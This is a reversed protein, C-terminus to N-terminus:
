KENSNNNLLIERKFIEIQHRPNYYSDIVEYSKERLKEREEETKSTMKLICNSLDKVDNEIFFCGNVGPTIAEFEPMQNKFNNHTIVPTGYALSHMATLGVNGPSVCVDSNYLLEGIKYEDYSPGYLWINESVGKRNILEIFDEAENNAGIIVLNVQKEQSKLVSISEILLDLRKVKQIRGIYILVPLNNNFYDKYINTKKLKKRVKLQLDYNLSNYIVILRDKKFGKKLMINKAYNGYLFVKNALKFFCTKILSKFVGEDGYWGHSWLYVKKNLFKSFFLIFWTSLCYPEGILFYSKYPKFLLSISGKMWTWNGFLSYFKLEKKYNKLVKYDIKKLNKTNASDAFYFDSDLDQDMLEYISSRYHSPFNFICCLKKEFPKGM